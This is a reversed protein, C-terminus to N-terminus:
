KEYCDQQSGTVFHQFDHFSSKLRASRIALFAAAVMLGVNRFVAPWGARTSMGILCGCDIPLNRVIASLIVLTFGLLMFLSLCAAKATGYNMLLAAGISVEVAIVFLVTLTLYSEPILNYAELSARFSSSSIAKSLGTVLFILGMGARLLWLYNDMWKRMAKMTIADQV